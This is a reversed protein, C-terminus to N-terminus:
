SPPSRRAPTCRGPGVSAKLFTSSPKVCLEIAEMVNQLSEDVSEGWSSGSCRGLVGGEVASHVVVSYQM